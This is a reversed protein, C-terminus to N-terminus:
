EERKKWYEEWKAWGELEKGRPTALFEEMAEFDAQTFRYLSAFAFKNLIQYPISNINKKYDDMILTLSINDKNAGIKKCYHVEIKKQVKDTIEDADDSLEICDEDEMCSGNKIGVKYKKIIRKVETSDVYFGEEVPNIWYIGDIRKM